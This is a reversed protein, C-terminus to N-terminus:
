YDDLLRYSRIISEHQGDVEYPDRWLEILASRHNFTFVQSKLVVNTDIGFGKTIESAVLVVFFYNQRTDFLGVSNRLLSENRFPISHNTTAFLPYRSFSPNDMMNTMHAILDSYNVIPKQIVGKTWLDALSYADKVSLRAVGATNQFPFQDMPMNYFAAAIVNTNYTNPNIKGRAVVNSTLTFANFIPDPKVNGEGVLRITDWKGVPLYGLECISRLSRIANTPSPVYMDDFPDSCNSAEWYNTTCNNVFGMSPLTRDAVAATTNTPRYTIWYRENVNTAVIRWNFRPDVCEMGGWGLGILNTTAPATTPLTFGAPEQFPTFFFLQGGVYTIPYPVADVLNHFSDFIQARKVQVFLRLQKQVLNTYNISPSIIVGLPLTRYKNGTTMPPIMVSRVYTAPSPVFQPDTNVGTFQFEVELRYNNNVVPLEFFPYCVEAMPVMTYTLTGDPRLLVFNTIGIENIMPCLEMSPEGLNTSISNQDLYDMLGDFVWKSNLNNFRTPDMAMLQSRFPIELNQLRTVSGTLVLANTPAFEGPPFRSYTTFNAPWYAFGENKEFLEKVSEYKGYKTEFNNRDEYFVELASVDSFDKGAGILAGLQIENTSVGLQRPVNSAGVFNADLLGSCNFVAYAYQVIKGSNASKPTMQDVDVIVWKPLPVKAFRDGNNWWIAGTKNSVTILNVNTNITIWGATNQTLNVVLFNDNGDGFASTSPNLTPSSAGVHKGLPLFAGGPMNSIANVMAAVFEEKCYRQQTDYIAPSVMANNQGSWDPYVEGDLNTNIATLARALAVNLVHRSSIEMRFYNSTANETRMFYVFGTALLTMLALMGLVVVLAIGRRNRVRDRNSDTITM